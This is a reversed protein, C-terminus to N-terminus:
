PDLLIRHPKLRNSQAGGDPECDDDGGGGM